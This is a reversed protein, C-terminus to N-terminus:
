HTMLNFNDRIDICDEGEAWKTGTTSLSGTTYSYRKM